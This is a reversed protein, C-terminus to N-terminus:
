SDGYSTVERLFQADRSLKHHPFLQGVKGRKHLLSGANQPSTRPFQALHSFRSAELVEGLILPCSVVKGCQGVNGWILPFCPCAWTIRDEGCFTPVISLRCAWLHRWWGIFNCYAKWPDAPIRDLNRLILKPLIPSAKTSQAVSSNTVM